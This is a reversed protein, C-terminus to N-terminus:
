SSMPQDSRAVGAQTTDAELAQEHNSTITSMERYLVCFPLSAMLEGVPARPDVSEGTMLSQWGATDQASYKVHTNGWRSPAIRLADEELLSGGHRTAIVMVAQGEHERTFGILQGAREGEFELGQYDGHLFTDSMRQRLHLVQTILAQKIRGDRWHDILEILPSEQSLQERRVNFDVPRRNDPDVLSFDWRETGQYCDPVGPVTMRLLTQVLANLAGAPSITTVVDFISHRLATGREDTLLTMVFERCQAEHTEDPYLWHSNLKAERLAKEQWDAIRGAFAELGAADDPSLTLPWAGAIIQYLMMEEAASPGALAGSADGASRLSSSTTLWERVQEAWRDGWESLAALRARVDEGRKHDHTATTVMTAPFHRAQWANFRHFDESSAAFHAGDFGVDNRSILVASRYGATDEVAKAALPSTLQAFRVIANRRLRCGPEDDDGPAEGGLWDYVQDLVAQDPPTLGDRAAEVAHAFFNEDRPALGQDDAYTRYIPFQVALERLVRRIMDPTTDRTMPDHRAVDSLARVAREFETVLATDVIERRARAVEKEFSHERGSLAHWLAKLPAEGEPDHQLKSVANMFEYGTTGTVGWDLPLSENGELIKEVFIPIPMEPAGGPRRTAAEDVRARLLRCYGAPDALGDVHDLRVGDVLGREILELLYVHTQAFVAPDDVRLAGLETIDFFRRWNLSDNATRWWALRYHQQELLVHLREAGEPTEPHYRALLAELEARGKDTRVHEALALGAREAGEELSIAEEIEEFRRAQEGMGNELLMLAHCRPDIPFCHEFYDVQFLGTTEDLTLAMDGSVLAQGYPEGLFPVLLRNELTPDGNDRWNIDFMDAFRGSPGWRLVDLWYPNERGGVALHNPVFDVILGMGRSRLRGVLRTLAAEDGIEPNLRTPDVGDYGHTSGSRAAWLPSAYLHTVGLGAFYDVLAEADELTFDKHFQLRQCSLLPQQGPVESPAGVSLESM